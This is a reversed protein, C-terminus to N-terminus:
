ISFTHTQYDKTLKTIQKKTITSFEMATNMLEDPTSNASLWKEINAKDLIKLINEMDSKLLEKQMLKLIAISVRFLIRLGEALFLDWVRIVFPFALHISHGTTYWPLAYMNGGIIQKQFHSHLKPLCSQLLHDHVYFCRLLNPFGPEFLGSMEYDALIRILVYFVDEETMYLLFQAAIFGM